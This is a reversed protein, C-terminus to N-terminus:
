LISRLSLGVARRAQHLAREPNPRECRLLLASKYMDDHKKHISDAWM